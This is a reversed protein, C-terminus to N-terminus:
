DNHGHQKRKKLFFAAFRVWLHLVLGFYRKKGTFMELYAKGRDKNQFGM